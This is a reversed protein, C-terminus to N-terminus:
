LLVVIKEILADSGGGFLLALNRFLLGLQGFFGAFAGFKGAGFGVIGIAFFHLQRRFLEDAQLLDIHLLPNAVAAFAGEDNPCADRRHHIHFLAPRAVM